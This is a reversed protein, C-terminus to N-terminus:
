GPTRAAAQLDRLVTEGHSRRGPTVLLAIRAATTVLEHLLEVRKPGAEATLTTVGTLNGGPRALSTVLGAAVANWDFWLRTKRIL